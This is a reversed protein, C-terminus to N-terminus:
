CNPKKVDVCQTCGSVNNVRPGYSDKPLRCRAYCAVSEEYARKQQECRSLNEDGNDQTNARPLPQPVPSSASQYNPRTKTEDMSNVAKVDLVTSKKAYEKPVEQGFHKKGDKDVWSYIEAHSGSFSFALGLIFLKILFQKM